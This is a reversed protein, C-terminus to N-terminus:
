QVGRPLRTPLPSPVPRRLINVSRSVWLVAIRLLATLGLKSANFPDRVASASAALAITLPAPRVRAHLDPLLNEIQPRRFRCSAKGPSRRAGSRYSHIYYRKLAWTEKKASWRNLVEILDILHIARVDRSETQVMASSGCHCRGLHALADVLQNGVHCGGHSGHGSKGFPIARQAIGTGVWLFQM